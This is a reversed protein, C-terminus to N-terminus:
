LTDVTLDPIGTDNRNKVLLQEHKEEIANSSLCTNSWIASASFDPILGSCFFFSSSCAASFTHPSIRKATHNRKAKRGSQEVVVVVIVLM